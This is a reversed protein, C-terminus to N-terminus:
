VLAGETGPEDKGVIKQVSALLRKRTDNVDEVQIPSGDPGSHEQKLPADIGIIKCRREICWQVGTLFRPDGAQGKSTQNVEAPQEKVFRGTEDQYQKVAGKTKKSTTEANECSREWADWYERELHDVKALEIRKAEDINMLTSDQWAQQIKKLDYGIQQRSLIYDRSQDQNIRDTIREQTWGMLYLDTIEERDRAIQFAKRKPSAM